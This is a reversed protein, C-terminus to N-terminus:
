YSSFLESPNKNDTIVPVNDTNISNGNHISEINIQYWLNEEREKIKNIDLEKKTFIFLRNKKDKIVYRNYEPFVSSITKYESRMFKGKGVINTMLYGDSSLDNKIQSYFEKTTMHSPVNESSFTDVLIYDYKQNNKEIYERGDEIITNIRPYEEPNYYMYEIAMERVLPDNEIVTINTNSINHIARPIIYGGGGLVLSKNIKDENLYPILPYQTYGELRNPQNKIITSQALNYNNFYMYRHTNEGVQVDMINIQKNLGRESAVTNTESIQFGITMFSIIILFLILSTIMKTTTIGNNNYLYVCLLFSIITYLLITNAIGQFPILYFTAIFIGIIGGFTNSSYIFGSSEGKNGKIIDVSIPIIMGFMMAIPSLLLLSPFLSETYGDTIALIDAIESGLLGSTPILLCLIALLLAMLNDNNYKTESARGGLYYGISLGLLISGIVSGWVFKSSGFSTEFISGAVMEYGLSIFGTFFVIIGYIFRDKV